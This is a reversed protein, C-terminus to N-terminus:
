VNCSLTWASLVVNEKSHPANVMEQLDENWSFIKELFNTVLPDESASLNHLQPLSAVFDGAWGETSYCLFAGFGSVSM